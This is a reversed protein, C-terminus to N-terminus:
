RIVTGVRKVHFECLFHYKLFFTCQLDAYLKGPVSVGHEWIIM